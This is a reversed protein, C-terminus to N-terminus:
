GSNVFNRSKQVRSSSPSSCETVTACALSMPGASNRAISPSNRSCQAAGPAQDISPLMRRRAVDLVRLGVIGSKAVTNAKLRSIDGGFRRLSRSVQAGGDGGSEHAHPQGSAARDRQRQAQGWHPEEDEPGDRRGLGNLVTEIDKMELNANVPHAFIAHLVKRQHHNVPRGGKRNEAVQFAMTDFRRRQRQRRDFKRGAWLGAPYRFPARARLRRSVATSRWTREPEYGRTVGRQPTMAKACLKWMATLISHGAEAASIRHVARSLGAVSSDCLLTKQQNPARDAFTDIGKEVRGGVGGQTPQQEVLARLVPLAVDEGERHHPQDRRVVDSDAQIMPLITSLIKTAWLSLATQSIVAAITAM